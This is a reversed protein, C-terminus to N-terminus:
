NKGSMTRQEVAIVEVATAIKNLAKTFQELEDLRHTNSKARAGLGELKVTLEEANM